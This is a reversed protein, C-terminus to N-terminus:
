QLPIHTGAQKGTQGTLPNIYDGSGTRADARPVQSGQQLGPTTSGEHKIKLRWEGTAPDDWREINSGKNRVYGKTKAWRRLRWVNVEKRAAAVVSSVRRSAAKCLQVAGTKSRSFLEGAKQAAHVAVRRVAPSRAAARIAAAALALGRVLLPLAM